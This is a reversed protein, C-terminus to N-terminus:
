PREMQPRVAVIAHKFLVIKTGDDLQVDLNFRTIGVIKGWTVDGDVQIVRLPTNAHWWATLLPSSELRKPKDQATRAESTAAKARQFNEKLSLKRNLETTVTM